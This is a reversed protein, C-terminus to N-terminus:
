RFRRIIYIALAIIALVVLVTWLNVTVTDNGDNVDALLFAFM